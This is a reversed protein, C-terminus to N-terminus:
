VCLALMESAAMQKAEKKNNATGFACLTGFECKITFQVNQPSLSSNCETYIPYPLRNQSALENLKGVSNCYNVPSVTPKVPSKTLQDTVGLVGLMQQASKHKAEQKSYAKAIATLDGVTVTCEFEPKLGSLQCFTYQPPPKGHQALFEQLLSVSTKSNM